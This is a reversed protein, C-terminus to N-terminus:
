ECEMTVTAKVQIVKLSISTSIAIKKVGGHMPRGMVTFGDAYHWFTQYPFVLIAHSDSPSTDLWKPVVGALSLCVSLCVDQSLM